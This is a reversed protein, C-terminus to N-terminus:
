VLKIHQRLRDVIPNSAGKAAKIAMMSILAQPSVALQVAKSQAATKILNGAKEVAQKETASPTTTMTLAKGPETALPVKVTAGYVKPAAEQTEIRLRQSEPAEHLEEPTEPPTTFLNEDGLMYADDGEVGFLFRTLKSVAKLPMIAAKTALNTAINAGKGVLRVGRILRAEKPGGGGKAKKKRKKRKKKPAEEEEEDESDAAQEESDEDTDGEDDDDDGAGDDDYEYGEACYGLVDSDFGLVDFMGAAEAEEPSYDSPYQVSQAEVGPQGRMKAAWMAMALQAPTKVMRLPARAAAFPLKLGARGFRRARRFAGRMSFPGLLTAGADGIASYDLDGFRSPDRYGETQGEYRPMKARREASVQMGLKLSPDEIRGDGRAVVAHYRRPGSRYVYVHADPDVGSHRLEAVRWAALDECDGWGTAFVDDIHRWTDPLEKRYHVGSEYLPPFDAVALIEEDLSALGEIAAQYFSASTPIHIVATSDGGRPALEAGRAISQLPQFRM